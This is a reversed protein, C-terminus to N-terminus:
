TRQCCSAGGPPGCAVAGTIAALAMLMLWGYRRITRIRAEGDEGRVVWEVIHGIKEPDFLATSHTANPFKWWLAEGGGAEILTPVFQNIRPFELAGTVVLLRENPFDGVPIPAPSLLLMTDFGREPALDMLLAGGMSHGIVIPNGQEEEVMELSAELARLSNLYNFSTRSDGHGPLDIAYTEVGADVLAMAFTQMFEKSSNLGHVLIATAIPSSDPTFHIYPTAPDIPLVGRVSEPTAGRLGIWGLAFAGSCVAVATLRLRVVAISYYKSVAVSDRFGM